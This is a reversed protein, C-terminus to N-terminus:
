RNSGEDVLIVLTDMRLQETFFINHFIKCTRLLTGASSDRRLYLEINFAQLKMFVLNESM